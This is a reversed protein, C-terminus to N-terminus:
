DEDSSVEKRKGSTPPRQTGSTSPQNPDFPKSILPANTLLLSFSVRRRLREVLSSFLRLIKFFNGHKNDYLKGSTSLLCAKVGFAVFYLKKTAIGYYLLVARNPPSLSM